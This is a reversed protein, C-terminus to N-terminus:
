TGYLGVLGLLTLGSEVEGREPADGTSIYSRSALALVRLGQEALAEVNELVKAEMAEDMKEVKDAFQINVCTALVREVAGKTFVFQKRSVSSFNVSTLFLIFPLNNM